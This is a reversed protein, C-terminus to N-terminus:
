GPLPLPPPVPSPARARARLLPGRAYGPRPVREISPLHSLLRSRPLSLLKDLASLFRWPIALTNDAEYIGRIGISNHPRSERLARDIERRTRTQLPRPRRDSPRSRAPSVTPDFRAESLPVRASEPSAVASASLQKAPPPPPSHPPPPTPQPSSAGASSAQCVLPRAGLRRRSRTSFYYPLHPFIFFRGSLLSLGPSEIFARTTRATRLGERPV